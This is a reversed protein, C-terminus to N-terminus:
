IHAFVPFSISIQCYKIYVNISIFTGVHVLLKQVKMGGFYYLIHELYRQALVGM